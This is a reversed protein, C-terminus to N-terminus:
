SSFIFSSVWSPRPSSLAWSGAFPPTRRNTACPPTSSAGTPIAFKRLWPRGGRGPNHAGPRAPSPPRRTRSQRLPESPNPATELGLHFVGAVVRGSWLPRRLGDLTGGLFRAPVPAFDPLLSLRPAHISAIWRHHCSRTPRA